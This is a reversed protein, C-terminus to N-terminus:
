DCGFHARRGCDRTWGPKGYDSNVRTRAFFKDPASRLFHNVTPWALELHEQEPLSVFLSAGPTLTMVRTQWLELPFRSCSTQVSIPPLYLLGRCCDAEM